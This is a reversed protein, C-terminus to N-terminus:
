IKRRGNKEIKKVKSIVQGKYFKTKIEQSIKLNEPEKIIRGAEDFTITYGQKLKLIPNSLSLKEEEQRLKEKVKRQWTIQNKVLEKLFQEIKLNERWILNKIKFANQFFEKELVKFDQFYNELYLNLNTILEKIRKQKELIEKEIKQTFSKQFSIIKERVGRFTQLFLINLNKEIEFIDSKAKKWNESLIKAAHTPTSARLDSALDALTEDDEHGIGSIIPIKSSVIAKVIEETNFPRLSEWDGGGRILVLVDLDPMNQNFWEIAEKIEYVAFSGEVKVEFFFIEFGFNGIHTLFDKLAGRGVRSTILGIKECFRPVPKKREPNFYGLATLKKKLIEYQKKLIGEGLLEIKQVQFKLEGRDKRIEPYGLVRIEMGPEIEVGLSEIVERWAFCRLVSGQDDLINFFVYNPYSNIKEGVEGQVIAYCPSILENLFDLFESVTFVKEEVIPEVKLTETKM